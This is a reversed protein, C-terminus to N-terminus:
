YFGVHFSFEIIRAVLEPPVLHTFKPAFIAQLTARHAKEYAKFGGATQIKQLYPHEPHIYIPYGHRRVDGTPLIAGARLLVPWIRRRGDAIVRQMVTKGHWGPPNADAGARIMAEIIAECHARDTGPYPLSAWALATWHEEDHEAEDFYDLIVNVDAGASLLLQVIEVHAHYGARMLPTLNTSKVGNTSYTGQGPNGPAGANPSAGNALLFEVCAIRDALPPGQVGYQHSKGCCLQLATYRDPSNPHDVDVGASLIDRLAELDCRRAAEGLRPVEGRENYLGGDGAMCSHRGTAASGNSSLVFTFLFHVALASLQQVLM